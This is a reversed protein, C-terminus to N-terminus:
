NIYADIAGIWMLCSGTIASGDPLFTCGERDTRASPCEVSRWLHDSQNNGHTTEETVMVDRLRLQAPM